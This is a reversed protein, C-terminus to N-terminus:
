VSVEAASTPAHDLEGGEVSVYTVHRDGEERAPVTAAARRLRGARTLAELM